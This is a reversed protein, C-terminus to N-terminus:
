CSSGPGTSNSPETSIPQYSMSVLKRVTTSPGCGFFAGACASFGAALAGGATALGPAGAAPPEGSSLIRAAPEEGAAAGAAPPEGSSLIRAAPAVGAAAGAALPDGKSLIRAAPALGAAAGAATGAVPPEGSSLIRAAALGAAAGTSSDAAGTASAGAAAVGFGAAGIVPEGSSRMRAMPATFFSQNSCLLTHM